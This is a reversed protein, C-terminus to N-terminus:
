RTANVREVLDPSVRLHPKNHSSVFVIKNLVNEIYALSLAPIIFPYQKCNLGTLHLLETSQM